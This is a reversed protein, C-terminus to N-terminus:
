KRSGVKSKFSFVEIKYVRVMIVADSSKLQYSLLRFHDLQLDFSPFKFNSSFLKFDLKPFWFECIAQSSTINSNPM